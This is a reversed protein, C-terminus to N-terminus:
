QKPERWPQLSAWVAGKGGGSPMTFIVRVYRTPTDILKSFMSTSSALSSTTNGVFGSGGFDTSATTTAIAIQYTAYFGLQTTTANAVVEASAPYWDVNDQSYEVRMNVVPSSITTTADFQFLVIAKDAKSNLGLTNPYVVDLTVTSTGVGFTIFKPSTTASTLGTIYAPPNFVSPNANTVQYSAMLVLLALVFVGVIGVKGLINQKTLNM